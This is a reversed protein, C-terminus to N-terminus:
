DMLGKSRLESYVRRNHAYFEEKAQQSTSEDADEPIVYWEMPAELSERRGDSHIRMHRPNTMRHEAYYDLYDEGFVYRIRWGAKSVEGPQKLATVDHPLQIDWNDFDEAFAAEITNM